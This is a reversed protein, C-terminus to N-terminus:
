SDIFTSATPNNSIDNFADTAVASCALHCSKVRIVFPRRPAYESVVKSTLYKRLTTRSHGTTRCIERESKGQQKLLRIQMYKEEELM